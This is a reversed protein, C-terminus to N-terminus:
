GRGGRDVGAMGQVVARLTVAVGPVERLLVDLQRQYPSGEADPRLLAQAEAVLGPVEHALLPARRSMTREDIRVVTATVPQLWAFWEHHIALQLFGSAHPIPGHTREFREREADLLAKHVALLAERLLELRMRDAASAPVPPLDPADPFTM